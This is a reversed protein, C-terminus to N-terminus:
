GESSPAPGTVKPSTPGMEPLRTGAVGISPQAASVLAPSIAPLTASIRRPVQPKTTLYSIACAAPAVAMTTKLSPRSAVRTSGITIPPRPAVTVIGPRIIELVTPSTSAPVAPTVTVSSAKASG